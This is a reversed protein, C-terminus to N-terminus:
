LFKVIANCRLCSISSSLFLCLINFQKEACRSLSYTFHTIDFHWFNTISPLDIIRYRLVVKNNLIPTCSAGTDVSGFCLRSNTSKVESAMESM